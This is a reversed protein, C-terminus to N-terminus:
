ALLRTVEMVRNTRQGGEWGLCWVLRGGARGAQAGEGTLPIGGTFISATGRMGPGKGLM